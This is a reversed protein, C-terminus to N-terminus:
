WVKIQVYGKSPKTFRLSLVNRKNIKKWEVKEITDACEGYYEIEIMTRRITIDFQFPHHVTLVAPKGLRKKIKLILGQVKPFNMSYVPAITVSSCILPFVFLTFLVMSPQTPVSAIVFLSIIISGFTAYLLYGIVIANAIFGTENTFAITHNLYDIKINADLYGKLTATTVM